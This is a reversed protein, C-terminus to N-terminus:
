QEVSYLRWCGNAAKENEGLLEHRFKDCNRLLYHDFQSSTVNNFWPFKNNPNDRWGDRGEKLPSDLWFPRYLRISSNQVGVSLEAVGKSSLYVGTGESEIIQAFVRDANRINSITKSAAGVEKDYDVSSSVYSYMFIICTIPVLWMPLAYERRRELVLVWAGLLLMRLEVPTEFYGEIGRPLLTILGLFYLFIIYNIKNRTLSYGSLFPLVLLAIPLLVRLNDFESSIFPFSLLPIISDVVRAASFALEYTNLYIVAKALWISVLVVGPLLSGITGAIASDRESTKKSLGLLLVIPFVVIALLPYIHALLAFVILEISGFRSVNISRSLMYVSLAAGTLFSLDAYVFIPISLFFLYSIAYCNMRHLRKLMLHINALLSLYLLVFTIKYGYFGTFSILVGLMSQFGFGTSFYNVNEFKTERLIYGLEKLLAFDQGMGINFPYFIFSYVLSIFAVTLYVSYTAGNRKLSEFFSNM